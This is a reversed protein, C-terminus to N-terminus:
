RLRAAQYQQVTRQITRALVPHPWTEDVRIEPTHAARGHCDDWWAAAHALIDAETEGWGAWTRRGNRDLLQGHLALRKDIPNAVREFHITLVSETVNYLEGM